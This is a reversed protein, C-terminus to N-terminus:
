ASGAGGLARGPIRLSGDAARLPEALSAIERVVSARQEDSLREYREAFLRTCDLTEAVFADVGQVIREVAIPQVIVQTFGADELLEALRGPASLAFPGPANPDPPSANGTNVLARRPITAWPNLTADDWVALSFRGGPRLVRRIERLAAGPDVCLMVGWRCLVADVAAAPLDIWELELQRFEVNDIGLRHARARAVSLMAESADSCVLTGGPRILEAALFGTDGDGAALELVRQGPQLMLQELMWASVPM